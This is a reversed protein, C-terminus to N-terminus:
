QLLYWIVEYHDFQSHFALDFPSRTCMSAGREFLLKVIEFHGYRIAFMVPNWNNPAKLNLFEPYNDLLKEVTVVDGSEVANFM